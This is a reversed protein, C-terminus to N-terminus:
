RGLPPATRMDPRGSRTRGTSRSRGELLLDPRAFLRECRIMRLACRRVFYKVDNQTASRLNERTDDSEHNTKTRRAKSHGCKKEHSSEPSRGQDDHLADVGVHARFVQEGTAKGESRGGEPDEKGLSPTRVHAGDGLSGDEADEESGSLQELGDPQAAGLGRRVSEDGAQVDDEGRQQCGDDEAPLRGIGHPSSNGQRGDTHPHQGKVRGGDPAPETTDALQQGQRGGQGVGAVDHRGSTEGVRGIDRRQAEVLGDGDGDDTGNRGQGTAQTSGGVHLIPEGQGVEGDDAAGQRGKHLTPAM